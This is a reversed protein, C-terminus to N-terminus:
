KKVYIYQAFRYIRELDKVDTVKNIISILSKKTTNIDDKYNKTM